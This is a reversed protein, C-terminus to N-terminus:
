KLGLLEELSTLKSKRRYGVCVWGTTRITKGNSYTTYTEGFEWFGGKGFKPKINLYRLFTTTPKTKLRKKM